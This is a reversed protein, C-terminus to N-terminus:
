SFFVWSIILTQMIGLLAGFFVESPRHGLMEKLEKTKESDEQLQETEKVHKKFDEVLDNLVTAQEGAHWRIGKADYMVIIAFMVSVAFAATDLGEQVGIATALSTVSASHSSPMGGTSFFLNLKLTRTKIFAIPIKLFQATFVGLLAAILPFNTLLATM